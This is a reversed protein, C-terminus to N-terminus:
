TTPTPRPRIRRERELRSTVDVYTSLAGYPRGDPESLPSANVEVWLATGDRRVVQVLAGRVSEGALALRVPSRSRDLPRGDSDAVEIPLDRLRSGVLEGLSVGCLAAAAQNARTILGAQDVVILGEQLSEVISANLRESREREDMVGVVAPSM